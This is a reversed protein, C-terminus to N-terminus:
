AIPPGHRVIPRAAKRLLDPESPREADYALALHEAKQPTIVPQHLGGVPERPCLRRVSAGNQEQMEPRVAIFTAGSGSTRDDRTPRDSNDESDGTSDKPADEGSQTASSGAPAGAAFAERHTAPVYACEADAKVFAAAAAIVALRLWFCHRGGRHM